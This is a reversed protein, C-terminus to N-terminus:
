LESICIWWAHPAHANNSIVHVVVTTPIGCPRAHTMHLKSPVVQSQACAMGIQCQDASAEETPQSGRANAAEQAAIWEEFSMHAGATSFRRGAQAKDASTKESVGTGLSARQRPM